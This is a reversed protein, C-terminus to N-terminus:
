SFSKGSSALKPILVARWHDVFLYRLDSTKVDDIDENSSFVGEVRLRLAVKELLKLCRVVPPDKPVANSGGATPAPPADGSSLRQFLVEAERFLSSLPLDDDDVDDDEEEDDQQSINRNPVAPVAM